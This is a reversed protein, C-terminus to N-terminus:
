PSTGEPIAISLPSFLGTAADRHCAGCQSPSGVTKASFVQVPISRHVRRWFPTATIRLPEAPDAIRLLNAPKTDYTEASNAALYARISQATGPDLSADEGFHQALGDMVAIWASGPLLSPHYATHCAGCERAYVADLPRVPVGLGPRDTLAMTTGVGAAFIATALAFAPWPHPRRSATPKDGPRAEKRGDIMARLLNEQTRRSEYIAGGVHAPILGLLGYALLKHAQGLVRGTAFSTIFALPGSKLAGGLEVVGTLALALILALLALIMAGGAPNHGLHRFATGRRLEALHDVIRRPGVVFSSFRAHDTGLLGWIIRAM